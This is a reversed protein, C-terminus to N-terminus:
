PEVPSGPPVVIIDDVVTDDFLHIDAILLNEIPYTRTVKRRFVLMMDQRMIWTQNFLEPVSRIAQSEAFAMQYPLLQELNQPISLGDRLAAANTKALPGYFTSLVDLQEHRFYPGVNNLPDYSIWPGADPIADVVGIACWNIDPEPQKPVTPQWRPRVLSGDLATVSTVLTQLIADLEADDPPPPPSPLLVGGSASTNNVPSV